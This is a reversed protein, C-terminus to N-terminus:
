QRKGQVLAEPHRELYDTLMRVSRSAERLDRLARPLEGAGTTSNGLLGSTAALTKELQTSAGQLSQMTPGISTSTERTLVELNKLTGTLEPSRLVQNAGQVLNRADALLRTASETMDDFGSGPISPIVPYKGGFALRAKAAHPHFALTVIKTGTLLSGTQLEARLGRAVLMEMQADTSQQLKQGETPLEGQHLLVREPDLALTVPVQLHGAEGELRVDTVRGVRIGLLEVPTGVDVGRVSGGFYIQYGVQPGYPTSLAADKDPYLEFESDKPSALESAGEPRTDFAVGGLIVAQLSEVRARFGAGGGASVEVGSANWFRTEPHVLQDHPGRVFVNVAVSQADSSLTAGLVEGVAVGRYYVPSGRSLSGLNRARLVFSRGEGSPPLVPPEELGKFSETRNGKGPEMEVYVGSFLTGLGSVGGVGLRPRVVWFRTGTTLHDKLDNRMRAHVEVRNLDRSLDVFEVLGVEVNRLMVRTRGPEIGEASAFTITVLPGRQGLTKWGLWGAIAVAAIPVLWIPAFRRRQVRAERAETM